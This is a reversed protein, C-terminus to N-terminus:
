RQMCFHLYYGKYPRKEALDGKFPFFNYVMTNLMVSNPWKLVLFLITYM